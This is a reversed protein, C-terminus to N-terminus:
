AAGLDQRKALFARVRAESWANLVHEPGLGARRVTAVGYPMVGLGAVSHADSSVVVTCGAAVARALEVDGLDLRYPSANCEIAV